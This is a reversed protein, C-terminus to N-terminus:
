QEMGRGEDSKLASEYKEEKWLYQYKTANKVADGSDVKGNQNMDAALLAYGTLQENKSSYHKSMLVADGSDNRGNSNTDGMIIITYAMQVADAAAPNEATIKVTEGTVVLKRGDTMVSDEFGYTISAANLTTFSILEKFDEETIGDPSVDLYLLKKEADTKGGRILEAMQIQPIPDITPLLATLAYRYGTGEATEEVTYYAAGSVFAAIGLPYDATVSAGESLSITSDGRDINGGGMLTISGSVKVNDLLVVKENVRITSGDAAAAFAAALDSGRYLVTSGDAATVVIKAEVVERDFLQITLNLSLRSNERQFRYTGFEGDVAAAGLKTGSGTASLRGTAAYLIKLLGHYTKELTAAGSLDNASLELQSLMESFPVGGAAELSDILQKATVEEIATKLGRVDGTAAYDKLSSVLAANGQSGIGHALVVGLVVAYDATPADAKGNLDLTVDATIKGDVTLSGNAYGLSNLQAHLAQIDVIDDLGGSLKAADSKEADTGTVVIRLTQAVVTDGPRVNATLYNEAGEGAVGAEVMWPRTTLEYSALPEGAEISAKLAAFDTFDTLLTNIIATAGQCNVGDLVRDVAGAIGGDLLSLVNEIDITYLESGDISLSACTYYHFVLDFLLDAAMTKLSPIDDTNLFGAALNVQIDGQDDVSITYLSNKVYGFGDQVYGNKLMGSIKDSYRGAAIVFDGKLSGNVGGCALTDLTSDVITVAAAATVNGTITKGNLNLTVAHGINVDGAINELLIVVAGDPASALASVADKVYSLKGTGAANKDLIMAQYATDMNTLRFRVGAYLGEESEAISGNVKEGLNLSELLAQLDYHIRGTLVSGEAASDMLAANELLNNLLTRLPKYLSAYASLDMEKSLQRLTNEFTEMTVSDDALILKIHTIIYDIMEELDMSGIVAIDAQGLVMLGSLYAKYVKEPLTLELDLRGDQLALRVYPQIREINRRLSQLAAARLDFDEVTVYFSVSRGAFDNVGTRFRLAMELLKGGLLDTDNIYAGGQVPIANEVAGIVTNEGPLTLEAIDGKADIVSHITDLSLGSNLLADALAQLHIIGDDILTYGGADISKLNSGFVALAVSQLLAATDPRKNQPSVRLVVSLNGQADEVPIFAAILCTKGDKSFTMNQEALAKNLDEVLKLIDQRYLDVTERGITLSGNQFLSDIQTQTFTYRVADAGVIMMSGGITYRYQKGSLTCAPLTISAADFFFSQSAPVEEGEETQFHVTYQQPAWVFTLSLGEKLTTGVLPLEGSTLRYHTQDLGATNELSTLLSRLAAVDEETLEVGKPFGLSSSEAAIISGASNMMQVHLTVVAKDPAGQTLKASLTLVKDLDAATYTQTKGMAAEVAATLAGLSPSSVDISANPGTLQIDQLGEIIDGIQDYYDAYGVYELLPKFEEDSYVTNLHANLLDIQSQIKRYNENQYCYTLGDAKYQTLYNYLYLSATAKDVCSNLITQISNKSEQSLDSGKVAVDIQNLKEQNLMGLKDYLKMLLALAAQQQAAEQALQHPLNLIELVDGSDVTDLALEYRVEVRDFANAQFTAEGNQIAFEAATGDNAVARGNVPTWSLGPISSAYSQATLAFRNEGLEQLQLLGDENAPVRLKITQSKLAVSNLIAAAERGLRDAYTSAALESLRYETKTKGTSRTIHTDGTVRYVSGQDYLVGDVNYDYSQDIDECVPLTLNYGYPVSVPAGGDYGYTLAVMKPTYLIEYELDKELGGELPTATRTYHEEDVGYFDDWAALAQSEVGSEAIAALVEEAAAGQRLVLSVTYETLAASDTSDVTYSPIVDAHVTVNVNYQNMDYFVTATAALLSTKLAADDHRSSHDVATAALTNMMEYEAATMDSKLLERELAVWDDAVVPQMSALLEKLARMAVNLKNAFSPNQKQIAQILTPLGKDESIARVDEYTEAAKEKIGRGSTLLYVLANDAATYGDLLAVLDLVGLANSQCQGYLRRIAAKTTENALMINYDNLSSDTLSYLSESNEGLMYLTTYCDNLVQLNQLGQALDAPANLLLRQLDAAVQIYLAYSVSVRYANGTYTFSGKGENLAVEEQGGDYLVTASVPNWIYGNDQYSAATISKEEANVTVLGDQNGPVAFSHRSGVLSGSNLVAKEEATLIDYNLAVLGADTVSAKDDEQAEDAELAWAFNTTTLMLAVTLLMALCRKWLQPYQRM